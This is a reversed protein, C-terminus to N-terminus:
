ECVLGDDPILAEYAEDTLSRLFCVLADVENDTLKRGDQLEATSINDAVEPAAWAVGTEPNIANDSDTLHQDYFRIVTDLTKFVGNHMYPATVAVNRLSPVRFKGELLATNESAPLASSSALGTDVFEEGKGNNARLETNKPVGINHYEYGSFTERANGIVHLQHCTACNTFQQSFFIAKGQAVKSAPSFIIEGTISKDYKSSFPSFTDTREFAAISETLLRYARDTNDFVDGGYLQEFAEVYDNNELVRDIVAARSPMNMEVPNLLPAGAQEELDSARGDWFQGGIWGSYDNQQSSFRARTGSQFTPIFDAYMATPTNRDGISVGDDGVSAARTDNNANKAPDSFAADADHCTSCSQSRNLSLNTDNFLAEGLLEETNFTPTDDSDGGCAALTLASFLIFLYVRLKQLYYTM